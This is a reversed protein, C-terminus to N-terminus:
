LLLLIIHAFCTSGMSACRIVVVVVVVVVIVVVVVVVVEVDVMDFHTISLGVKM